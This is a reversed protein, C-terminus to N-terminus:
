NLERDKYFKAGTISVGVIAGETDVQFMNVGESVTVAGALAGGKTKTKAVAMDNAGAEWGSTVFTNFAAPTEFVFVIRYKEAGIGMGPQFEAMEMFTEQKTANNIAVGKGKAGGMFGFKFGLDSFIAYGSANKTVQGHTEPKTKYLDALTQSAMARVSAQKEGKESQTVPTTACSTLGLFLAAVALLMVIRVTKANM